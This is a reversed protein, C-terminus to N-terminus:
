NEGAVFWNKNLISYDVTNVIGDQNIDALADTGFWKSNMNSFDLSNVINDGTLDGALLVPYTLSTPLSSFSYPGLIRTLYGLVTVKMYVNQPPVTVSIFAQGSTNTTFNSQTLVGKNSNLVEIKGSGVKSSRGEFSLAITTSKSVQNSVTATVASSTTTLGSNDRAVATFSHSGNTAGNSDWSVSYPSSTDESGVNNGDVKFQVGAIGQADSANATLNITGSVTSSATPNTISVTPPTADGTISLGQVISLKDVGGASVNTDTTSGPTFDFNVSSTGSATARFTITAIKGTGQFTTGGSTAQSLQITGTTNNVSNTITVPLLSTTAIQVGSQSSNSDVVQVLSPNFKLSFIDLGDISEGGTDLMVDVTFNQNTATTVTAPNLKLSTTSSAGSLNWDVGLDMDGKYKEVQKIILYTVSVGVLLLVLIYWNSNIRNKSSKPM